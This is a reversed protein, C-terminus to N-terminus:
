DDLCRCRPPHDRWPREAIPSTDHPPLEHRKAEVFEHFRDIWNACDSRSPRSVVFHGCTDWVEWRTGDKSMVIHHDRYQM